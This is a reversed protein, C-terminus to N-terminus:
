VALSLSFSLSCPAFLSTKQANQQNFSRTRIRTCCNLWYFAKEKRRSRIDNKNDSCHSEAKLNESNKFSVRIAYLTIDCYLDSYLYQCNTQRYITNSQSIPGHVNGPTKYQSEYQTSMYQLTNVALNQKKYRLFLISFFVTTFWRTLVM